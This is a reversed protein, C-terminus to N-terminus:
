LFMVPINKGCTSQEIRRDQELPIDSPLHYCRGMEPQLARYLKIEAIATVAPWAIAASLM